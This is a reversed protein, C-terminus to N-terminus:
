ATRIRIEGMMGVVRIHLRPVGPRPRVDDVDVRKAGMFLFGSVEVDVGEPVIVQQEGMLLYLHVTIEPSDVVANRLDVRSEGMVTVIATDDPLRSIGRKLEGMVTVLWKRKRKGEAPMSVAATATAPSPLDITLPELDARTVAAYASSVRGGMEELTLRGEACAASLISVVEEREADSVRVPRPGSEPAPRPELNGASGETV